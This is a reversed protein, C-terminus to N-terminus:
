VACTQGCRCEHKGGKQQDIYRPCWEPVEDKPCFANGNASIIATRRESDLLSCRYQGNANEESDPCIPCAGIEYFVKRM